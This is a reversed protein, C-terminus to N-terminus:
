SWPWPAAPFILDISFDLSRMPFRVRSRRSQITTASGVVSGRSTIVGINISNRFRYDRFKTDM